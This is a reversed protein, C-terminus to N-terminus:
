NNALKKVKDTNELYAEIHGCEPCVACAVKGIIAGFLGKQYVCVNSADGGDRIQLDQVMETNCRPCYRM